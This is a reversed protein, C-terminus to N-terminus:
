RGPNRNTANGNAPSSILDYCMNMVNSFARWESFDTMLWIVTVHFNAPPHRTQIDHLTTPRHIKADQRM